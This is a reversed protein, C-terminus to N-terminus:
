SLFVVLKIPTRGPDPRSPQLMNALQELFEIEDEARNGKEQTGEPLFFHPDERHIKRIKATNQWNLGSDQSRSESASWPPNGTPMWNIPRRKSSGPQKSGRIVADETNGTPELGKVENKHKVQFQNAGLAFCQLSFVSGPNSIGSSSRRSSSTPRHVLVIGNSLLTVLDTFCHLLRKGLLFAQRQDIM